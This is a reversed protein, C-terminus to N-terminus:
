TPRNKRLWNKTFPVFQFCALSHALAMQIEVQKGGGGGEGPFPSREPGWENRKGQSMKTVVRTYPSLKTRAM